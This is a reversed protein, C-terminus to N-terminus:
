MLAGVLIGIGPNSALPITGSCKSFFQVKQQEWVQNKKTHSKKKQKILRVMVIKKDRNKGGKSKGGKGTSCDM